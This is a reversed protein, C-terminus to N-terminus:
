LNQIKSVCVHSSKNDTYIIDKMKQSCGSNVGDKRCCFGSCYDCRGDNTTSFEPANRCQSWCDGKQVYGEDKTSIMEIELESNQFAGKSTPIARGKYAWYLLTGGELQSNIQWNRHCCKRTDSYLFLDREVHKYVPKGGNEGVEEYIGNADVHKVAGSIRLYNGVQYNIFLEAIQAHSSGEWKLTVKQALIPGIAPFIITDGLKGESNPTCYIKKDMLTCVSMRTVGDVM